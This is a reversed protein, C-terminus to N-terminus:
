RAGTSPRPLPCPNPKLRISTRLLGGAVYKLASILRELTSKGDVRDVLAEGYLHAIREALHWDAVIHWEDDVQAMAATLLRFSESPSIEDVGKGRSYCWALNVRAACNGRTWLRGYIARWMM